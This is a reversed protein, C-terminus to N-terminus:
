EELFSRTVIFKTGEKQIIDVREGVDITEDYSVATWTTGEFRIRGPSDPAIPEAVEATKGVFEADNSGDLLTGRFVKAFYRRLLALSIGSGAAWIVLLLPIRSALSPVIATLLANILAGVGFFFIVFGPVAFESAILLFGLIAWFVAGM